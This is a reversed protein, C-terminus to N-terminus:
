RKEGGRKGGRHKTKQRKEREIERLRKGETEGGKGGGEM